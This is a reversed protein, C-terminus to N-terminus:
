VQVKGLPQLPFEVDVLMLAIAPEEVPNIATVALLLQPVEAGVLKVIAATKVTGTFGPTIDPGVSIQTPPLAVYVM